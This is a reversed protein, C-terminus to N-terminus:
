SLAARTTPATSASRGSCCDRSAVAGARASSSFSPMRAEDVLVSGAAGEVVRRVVEVEGADPIAEAVIAELAADAANRLSDLDYGPIAYGGEDAAAGPYSFEWAHVVRLTARRMKAEELAFRLAARAAKSDDVGVVIMGM